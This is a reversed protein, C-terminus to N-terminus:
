RLVSVLSMAEGPNAVRLAYRLSTRFLSGCARAAVEGGIAILMLSPTRSRIRIIRAAIAHQRAANPVPAAVGAGSTTETVVRTRVVPPEGTPLAYMASTGSPRGQPRGRTSAIASSPMETKRTGGPSYTNTAPAGPNADEARPMSETEPDDGISKETSSEGSWGAVPITRSSCPSGIAPARTELKFAAIRGGRPLILSSATRWRAESKDTMVSSLPAQVRGTGFPGRGSRKSAGPRPASHRTRLSPSGTAVSTESAFPAERVRVVSRSSAFSM